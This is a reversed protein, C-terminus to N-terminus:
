LRSSSLSLGSTPALCKNSLQQCPRSASPSAALMLYTLDQSCRQKITDARHPPVLPKLFDFSGCNGDLSRRKGTFGVVGYVAFAAINEFAVNSSVIAIADVVANSHKRNYSAYSTFYGFGVGTSFFVQGCATQWLRGNALESGRWTAWFYKVGESANDLSLSRGVLIITVVIPLGMTWYVVRGTLGVGKFICVWVLFWTFCMWGTTEGIMATGPFQVYGTDNGGEGPPIPDKNAVVNTM